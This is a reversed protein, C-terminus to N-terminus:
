IRQQRCGQVELQLLWRYDNLWKEFNQRSNILEYISQCYVHVVGAFPPLVSRRWFFQGKMWFWHTKPSCIQWVTFINSFYRHLSRSWVPYGVSGYLNTHTESFKFLSHVPTEISAAMHGALIVPYNRLIGWCTYCPLKKLHGLLYLM